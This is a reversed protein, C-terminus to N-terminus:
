RFVDGSMGIWIYLKKLHDYIQRQARHNLDRHMRMVLAKRETSPVIIRAPEGPLTALLLGDARVSISEGFDKEIQSREQQQQQM